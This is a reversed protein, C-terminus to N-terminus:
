RLGENELNTAFKGSGYGPSGSSDGSPGVRQRPPSTGVNDTDGYSAIFDYHDQANQASDVSRRPRQDQLGQQIPSGPGPSRERDALNPPGTYPSGPLGNKKRLALPTIEPLPRSEGSAARMQPRKFAAASITRTGVPLAGGPSAPSATRPPQFISPSPYEPPTGYASSTYSAAPSAGFAPRPQQLLSPQPPTQSVLQDTSGSRFDTRSGRFMGSSAPALTAGDNPPPQQQAFPPAPPMLPSPSRNMISPPSFSLSDMERAVERAAAANLSHEDMSPGPSPIRQSPPQPPPSPIRATQPQEHPSQMAIVWFRLLM